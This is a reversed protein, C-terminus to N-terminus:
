DVNTIPDLFLIDVEGIISDTLRITITNLSTIEIKDVSILQKRGNPLIEYVDLIVCNTNMNHPIVWVNSPTTKKFTKSVIGLSETEDFVAWEGTESNVHVQQFRQM